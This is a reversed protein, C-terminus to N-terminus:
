GVRVVHFYEILSLGWQYVDLADEDSEFEDILVPFGYVVRDGKRAWQSCKEVIRDVAWKTAAGESTFLLVQNDELGLESAHEDLLIVLAHTPELPDAQKAEVPKLQKCGPGEGNDLLCRAAEEATDFKWDVEVGCKPDEGRLPTGDAWCARWKGDRLWIKSGDPYRYNGEENPAGLNVKPLNESM